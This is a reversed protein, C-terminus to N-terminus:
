NRSDRFRKASSLSDALVMPGMKIARLNAEDYGLTKTSCLSWYRYLHAFPNAVCVQYAQCDVAVKSKNVISRGCDVM